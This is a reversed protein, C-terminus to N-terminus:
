VHEVEIRGAAALGLTVEKDDTQLTISDAIDNRSTITITTGM